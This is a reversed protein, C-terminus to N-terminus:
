STQENTQHRRESLKRHLLSLVPFSVALSLFETQITRHMPWGEFRCWGWRWDIRQLIWVIAFQLWFGHSCENTIMWQREREKEEKQEGMRMCKKKRVQVSADEGGDERQQRKTKKKKNQKGGKKWQDTDREEQDAHQTKKKQRQYSRTEEVGHSRFLVKCSNSPFPSSCGSPSWSSRSQLRSYVLVSAITGRSFRQTRVRRERKM